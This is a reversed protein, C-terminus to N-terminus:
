AAPGREVPARGLNAVDAVTPATSLKTVDRLDIVAAAGSVVASLFNTFTDAVELACLAAHKAATRALAKSLTTRGLLGTVAASAACLLATVGPMVFGVVPVIAELVESALSVKQLVATAPRNLVEVPKLPLERGDALRVHVNYQTAVHEPDAEIIREFARGVKNKGLKAELKDFNAELKHATSHMRSGVAGPLPKDNDVRATDEAAQKRYEAVATAQEAPTLTKGDVDIAAVADNTRLQALVKGAVLLQNHSISM